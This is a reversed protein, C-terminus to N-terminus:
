LEQMCWNDGFNAPCLAKGTERGSRSDLAEVRKRRPRCGLQGAIFISGDRM